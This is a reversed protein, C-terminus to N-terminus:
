SSTPSLPGFRGRLGQLICRRGGVQPLIRSRSGAVALFGSKFFPTPCKGFSRASDAVCGGSAGGAVKSGLHARVWEWMPNPGMRRQDSNLGLGMGAHSRPGRALGSVNLRLQARIWEWMPIPFQTPGNAMSGSDGQFGNGCLICAWGSSAGSLGWSIWLPGLVGLLPLGQLPRHLVCLLIDGRLHRQSCRQKALTKGWGNRGPIASFRARKKLWLCCTGLNPGVYGFFM